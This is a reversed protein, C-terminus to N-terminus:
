SSECPTTAGSAALILHSIDHSGNDVFFCRRIHSLTMVSAAVYCHEGVLFPTRRQNHNSCTKRETRRFSSGVHAEGPDIHSVVPLSVIWVM